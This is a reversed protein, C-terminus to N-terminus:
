FEGIIRYVHAKESLGKLQVPGLNQSRFKDKIAHYTTEGVVIQNPKCVISEIRSALNVTNGLVTYDMRAMSGIDGAVARGTNIGIRISFRVDEARRKNIIQLKQQMEIATQVARYPHDTMPEPAGFIAMIADGIFKDLTGEYRFIIETM